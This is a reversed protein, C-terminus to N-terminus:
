VPGIAEDALGRFTGDPERVVRRVAIVADRNLPGYIHPYHRNPDDYRVAAEIREVALTLALYPRPDDRYYTNGAVMLRNPDDTCHIFGEDDFREPRYDGAGTGALWVPEPVLHYTVRLEGDRRMRETM